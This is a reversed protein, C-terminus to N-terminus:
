RQVTAAPVIVPTGAAVISGDFGNVDAIQQWADSTGYYTLALQRLTTDGPLVIVALAGPSALSRLAGARRQVQARLRDTAYAADRRWTECALVDVVRDSTQWITYPRDVLSEEVGWTDVRVSESATAAKAIEPIPIGAAGDVARSGDFFIGLSIRFGAASAEFAELPNVLMGSPRAVLGDEWALAAARVPAQEEPASTARPTSEREGRWEFTADWKVDYLTAWTPVFTKLLGFRVVPGWQVRIRTGTRHLDEFARVLDAASQVAAFGSVEVDNSGALFRTKWMGDVKTPGFEPGLIQQTAVPNGPYWTLKTRMDRPFEIGQGGAIGGYPLARGRLTLTRRDGELETIQLAPAEYAM